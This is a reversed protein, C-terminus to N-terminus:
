RLTSRYDQHVDHEKLSQLRPWPAELIEPPKAPPIRTKSFVGLQSLFPCDGSM